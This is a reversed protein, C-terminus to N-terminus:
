GNRWSKDPVLQIGMKEDIMEVLQRTSYGKAAYCNMRKVFRELFATIQGHDNEPTEKWHYDEYLTDALTAILWILDDDSRENIERRMAKQAEQETWRRINESKRLTKLCERRQSRNGQSSIFADVSRATATTFGRNSLVNVPAYNM